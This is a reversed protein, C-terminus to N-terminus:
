YESSHPDEQFGNQKSKNLAACLLQRSPQIIIHKSWCQKCVKTHTAQVTLNDCWVLQHLKLVQLLAQIGILYTTATYQMKFSM